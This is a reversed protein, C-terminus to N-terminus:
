TTLPYWWNELAVEYSHMGRYGITDIPRSGDEVVGDATAEQSFAFGHGGGRPKPVILPEIRPSGQHPGPRHALLMLVDARAVFTCWTKM